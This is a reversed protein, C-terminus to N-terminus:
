VVGGTSPGTSISVVTSRSPRESLVTEPRMRWPSRRTASASAANEFGRLPGRKSWAGIGSTRGGSAHADKSARM